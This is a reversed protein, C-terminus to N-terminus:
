EAQGSDILALPRRRGHEQTKRFPPQHDENIPEALIADPLGAARGGVVLTYEVWYPYIDDTANQLSGAALDMGFQERGTQDQDFWGARASDWVWEPGGAGPEQRWDTTYQSKLKFELHLIGSALVETNEVVRKAPFEPPGLQRVQMLALGEAEKFPLPVNPLFLGRRLEMFAGEADGQAWPLLLMM